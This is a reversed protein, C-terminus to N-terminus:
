WQEGECGVDSQDEEEEKNAKLNVRLDELAIGTCRSGDRGCTEDQRETESCYEAHTNVALEDIGLDVKSVEHEEGSDSDPDSREGDQATDHGFEVQEVGGDSEDRETGAYTVIDNPPGQEGQGDSEDIGGISQRRQVHKQGADSEHEEQHVRDPVRIAPESPTSSTQLSPLWGGQHHGDGQQDGKRRGEESVDDANM